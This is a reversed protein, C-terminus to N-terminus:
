FKLGLKQKNNAIWYQFADCTHEAYFYSYEKSHTNYYPENSPLKKEAKDPEPNRKEISDKKWRYAVTEKVLMANNPSDLIYFKGRALFDQSFDILELKNKGKNVPTFRKGYDNFM